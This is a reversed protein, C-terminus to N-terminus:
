ITSGGGHRFLYDYYHQRIEARSKRSLLIETGDLLFCRGSEIRHIYEMNVLYGRSVAIFQELGLEKMANQFSMNFWHENGDREYVHVGKRESVVRIISDKRFWNLKKGNQFVAVEAEAHKRRYRRFVEDIQTLTLPKVLYHLADLEYADLAFAPSNTQFVIEVERDIQLIQKALENGKSDGGLLIDLFIMSFKAGQTIDQLIAEARHFLRIEFQYAQWERTKQILQKVEEADYRNDDCIAIM